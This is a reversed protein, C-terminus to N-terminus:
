WSVFTNSSAQGYINAEFLAPDFSNAEDSSPSSTDLVFLHTQLGIQVSLSGVRVPLGIVRVCGIGEIRSITADPTFKLAASSARMGLETVVKQKGRDVAYAQIVFSKLSNRSPMTAVVHPVLRLFCESESTFGCKLCCGLPSSPPLPLPVVGHALTVQHLPRRLAGIAGLCALNVIKTLADFIKAWGRENMFCCERAALTLDEKESMKLVDEATRVIALDFSKSKIAVFRKCGGPGLASRVAEELTFCAFNPVRAVRRHDSFDGAVRVRALLRVPSQLVQRGSCHFGFPFSCIQFFALRSHSPLDGAAPGGTSAEGDAVFFPSVWLLLRLWTLFEYFILLDHACDVSARPSGLGAFGLYVEWSRSDITKSLWSITTSSTTLLIFM